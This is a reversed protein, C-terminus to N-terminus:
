KNRSLDGGGLLVRLQLVFKVLLRQLRELDLSYCFGLFEFFSLHDNSPVLNPSWGRQFFLWLCATPHFSGLFCINSTLPLLAQRHAPTTGPRPFYVTGHTGPLWLPLKHAGPALSLSLSRSTDESSSPCDTLASDLIVLYAFMSTCKWSSSGKTQPFLSTSLVSETHPKVTSSLSLCTLKHYWLSLLCPLSFLSGAWTEQLFPLSSSSM